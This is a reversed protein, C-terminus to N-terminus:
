RNAGVLFIFHVNVNGRRQSRVRFCIDDLRVARREGFEKGVEFSFKRPNTKADDVLLVFNAFVQSNEHVLRDRRIQTRRQFGAVRHM